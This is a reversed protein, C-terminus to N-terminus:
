DDEGIEVENGEDDVIKPKFPPADRDVVNLKGDPLMGIGSEDDTMTGIKNALKKPQKGM